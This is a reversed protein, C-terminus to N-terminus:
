LARAGADSRHAVMRWIPDLKAMNRHRTLRQERHPMEIRFIAVNSSLTFITPHPEADGRSRVSGIQRTKEANIPYLFVAIKASRGHAAM